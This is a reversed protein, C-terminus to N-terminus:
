ELGADPYRRREVRPAAEGFGPRLTGPVVPVAASGRRDYGPRRRNNVPSTFYSSVGNRRDQGREIM